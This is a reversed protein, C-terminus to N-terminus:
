SHCTVELHILFNLFPLFYAQSNVERGHEVVVLRSGGSLSYGICLVVEFAPGGALFWTSLHM